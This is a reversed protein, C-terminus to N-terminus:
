FGHMLFDIADTIQYRYAELNDIAEGLDRRYITGINTTSLIFRKKKVLVVPTLRSFIEQKYKKEPALPIVVCTNILHSLPNAQVDLVYHFSRTKIQYVDFRAM